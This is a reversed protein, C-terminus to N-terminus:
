DFMSIHVPLNRLPQVTRLVCRYPRAGSAGSGAAAADTWRCCRRRFLVLAPAAHCPHASGTASCLLLRASCAAADVAVCWRWRRRRTQDTGRQGGTSIGTWTRKRFPQISVTLVSVFGGVDMWRSGSVLYCAAM